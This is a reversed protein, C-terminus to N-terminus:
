HTELKSLVQQQLYPPIDWKQQLRNCIKEKYKNAMNDDGLTKYRQYQHLYCSIYDRNVNIGGTVEVEKLVRIANDLYEYDNDWGTMGSLYAYEYLKAVYLKYDNSISSAITTTKRLIDGESLLSVISNRYYSSAISALQLQRVFVFFATLQHGEYTLTTDSINASFVRELLGSVEKEQKDGGHILLADCYLLLVMNTMFHNRNMILTSIFTNYLAFTDNTIYRNENSVELISFLLSALQPTMSIFCGNDDVDSIHRKKLEELTLKILSLSDNYHKINKELVLVKNVYNIYESDDFADIAPNTLYDTLSGYGKDYIASWYKLYDKSNRMMFIYNPLILNYYLDRFDGIEYLQHLLETYLHLKNGVISVFKDKTIIDIINTRFKKDQNDIKLYDLVAYKVIENKFHIQCNTHILNDTGTVYIFDDLMACIESIENNPAYGNQHLLCGLELGYLGNRSVALYSLMDKYWSPYYISLKELFLSIFAEKKISKSFIGITENLSSNDDCSILLDLFRRLLLPNRFVTNRTITHLQTNDISKHFKELYNTTFTDFIGKTLEPCREIDIELEKFHSISYDSEQSTILLFVFPHVHGIWELSKAYKSSETNDMLNDTGDLIMVLPKSLIHQSLKLLHQLREIPEKELSNVDVSKKYEDINLIVHSLYHAIDIPTNYSSYSNIFYYVVHCENKRLLYKIWNAVYSSKGCGWDGIIAHNNGHYFRSYDYFGRSNDLTVRNLKWNATEFEEEQHYDAYYSELITKQVISEASLEDFGSLPNPIIEDLYSSLFRGLQDCSSYDYYKYGGQKVTKILQLLRSDRIVNTEKIFFCANVNGKKKLVGHMIEIETISIENLTNHNSSDHNASSDLYELIQYKTETPIKLSEVDRKKVTTGYYDGIIGIFTDSNDISQLCKPIVLGAQAEENTIGWRLDTWSFNVGRKLFRKRIYPFVSIALYSREKNMDKFTSSLFCNIEM